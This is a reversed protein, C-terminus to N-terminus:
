GIGTLSIWLVLLVFIWVVASGRRRQPHYPPVCLQCSNLRNTSLAQDTDHGLRDAYFLMREGAHYM